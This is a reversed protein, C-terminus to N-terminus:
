LSESFWFDFIQIKVTNQPSRSPTPVNNVGGDRCELYMWFGLVILTLCAWGVRLILTLVSSPPSLALENLTFYFHDLIFLTDIIQKSIAYSSQLLKTFNICVNDISRNVYQPNTALKFEIVLIFWLKVQCDVPIPPDLMLICRTFTLRFIFYIKM